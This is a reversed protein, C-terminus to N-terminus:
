CLKLMDGTLLSAHLLGNSADSFVKTTTQSSGNLLTLDAEVDVQLFQYNAAEEARLGPYYEILGIGDFSMRRICRLVYKVQVVEPISDISPISEIIFNALTDSGEKKVLKLVYDDHEFQWYGASYTNEDDVLMPTAMGRSELDDDGITVPWKDIYFTDMM